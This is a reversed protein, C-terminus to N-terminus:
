TLCTIYTQSHCGEIRLTCLLKSIGRSERLAQKFRGHLALWYGGPLWAFDSFALIQMAQPRYGKFGEGEAREVVRYHTFSHWGTWKTFIEGERGAATKNNSPHSTIVVATKKHGKSDRPNQGSPHRTIDCQCPTLVAEGYWHGFTKQHILQVARFIARNAPEPGM